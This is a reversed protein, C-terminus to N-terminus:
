PTAAGTTAAARAAIARARAVLAELRPSGALAGPLGDAFRRLAARTPEDLTARDAEDLLKTAYGELKARAADRDTRITTVLAKIAPDSAVSQYAADNERAALFADARAVLTVTQGANLKAFADEHGARLDDLTVGADDEKWGSWEYWSAEWAEKLSALQEQAFAPVALRAFTEGVVDIRALLPAADAEPIGALSRRAAFIREAIEESGLQPSEPGGVTSQLAAWREELGNVAAEARDILALAAKPAHAQAFATLKARAAAVEDPVTLATAPDDIIARLGASAADWRDLNGIAHEADAVASALRERRRVADLARQGTAIRERLTAIEAVVSARAEASAGELEAEALELQAGADGFDKADFSTVSAAVYRTAAAVDARASTTAGAFALSTLITATYRM